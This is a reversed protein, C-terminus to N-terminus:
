HFNVNGGYVIFMIPCELIWMIDTVITELPAPSVIKPYAFCAVIDDSGTEQRVTHEFRGRRRAQCVEEVCAPLRGMACVSDFKIDVPHFMPPDYFTQVAISSRRM